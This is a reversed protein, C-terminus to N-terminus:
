ALVQISPVCWVVEVRRGPRVERGTPSRFEDVTSLQVPRSPNTGTPLWAMLASCVVADRAVARPERRAITIRTTVSNAPRSVTTSPREAADADGTPETVINPGYRLL